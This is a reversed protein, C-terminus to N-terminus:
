TFYNNGDMRLKPMSAESGGSLGPSLFHDGGGLGTESYHHGGRLAAHVGLVHNGAV